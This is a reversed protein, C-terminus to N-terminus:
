TKKNKLKKNLNIKLKTLVLGSETLEKNKLYLGDRNLRLLEENSVLLLNEINFNKKDGDAFIIKFGKPVKGNIYEWIFKHKLIWKNPEAVKIEYYGDINLRESGVERHNAPINGKKFTTKRSNEQGRKSMFEDWTKGKNWSTQGKQFQGGKLGSKIKLKTKLNGIIGVSVNLNFKKNFMEALVKEPNVVNQRIFDYHEATYRNM